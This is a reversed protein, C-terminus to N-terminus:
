EPLGAIRLGQIYRRSADKTYSRRAIFSSVTLNPELELLREVAAAAEAEQGVMGLSAALARYATSYSPNRRTARRAADVAEADRELQLLALAQGSLGDFDMSDRPSLRFAKEFYLLATSPNGAYVHVWGSMSWVWFSNANCDIAQDAFDIAEPHRGFLYATLRALLALAEANEKDIRVADEALTKAELGMESVSYWSQNIGWIICSALFYKAAAYDPDLDIARRLSEIAKRNEAESMAYFSPLARLYLDYVALSAAPQRRAREIETREISPVLAGVVSESITDQLAFVDELDGDYRDAWIHGGSAAEILQGTIRVRKGAKRVSGELVYRVGLDCGVQKIDVARGKYAFASNRAIVFLSRFRALATLIDETIGDAFYEQEPDGSLNDFPLVAISPKDPLSLGGGIASGTPTQRNEKASWRWVNVPRVINKVEHEGGNEWPIDMRDRVQRYADDSLALGNPESLGEVRAAINVGDGFIDDGDVIVDGLHVGIRFRMARDSAVDANRQTMEEQVHVCCEVAAVVSPFEALMGDGTTKVIRGGRSAIANDILEARHAKLSALTGAEDVGMLRSYGVVDAAVIAALKRQVGESM